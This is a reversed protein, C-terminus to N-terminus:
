AVGWKRMLLACGVRILEPPTYDEFLILEAIQGSFDFSGNPRAGIRVPGEDLQWAGDVVSTVSEENGDLVVVPDGGAFTTVAKRSYAMCHWAGKPAPSSEYRMDYNPGGFDNDFRLAFGSTVRSQFMNVTDPGVNWITRNAGVTEVDHRFVVFATLGLTSADFTLDSDGRYSADVGTFDAYFRGTSSRESTYIADALGYQEYTITPNSRDQFSVIGDGDLTMLSPDSFDIWARVEQLSDFFEFKPANLAPAGSGVAFAARRAVDRAV